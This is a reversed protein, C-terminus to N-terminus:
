HKVENFSKRPLLTTLIEKGFLELTKIKRTLFKKKNFVM